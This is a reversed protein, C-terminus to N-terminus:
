PRYVVFAPKENRYSPGPWFAPQIFDSVWHVGDYGAMHGSASASTAQIVVVDGKNPIFAVVDPVVVTRFGIRLLTPGWDKADIPHGATEAGASEL